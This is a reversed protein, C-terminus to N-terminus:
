LLESASLTIGFSEVREIRGIFAIKEGRRLRPLQEQSEKDFTAFFLLDGDEVSARYGSAPTSEVNFVVGEIKLWGDLYPEILKEAQVATHRQFIEVLETPTIRLLVKPPLRKSPDSVEGVTVTANDGFVNGRVDGAGGGGSASVEAKDAQGEEPEGLAFALAIMMTGVLLALVWVVDPANLAAAAVCSLNVGIGALGVWIKKRQWL